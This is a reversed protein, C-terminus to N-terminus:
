PAKAAVVRLLEGRSPHTSALTRLLLARVARGALRRPRLRVRPDDDYGEVLTRLEVVAFGARELAATLSGPAFHCVHAGPDLHAWSGRRLRAGVSEINPVEIVLRGGPRLRARVDRLLGVPDAAHELVHWMCVADFEREPLDATDLYGTRVDVGLRTRAFSASLDSPEVGIADFGDAVARALFFGTGAGVELLRAGRVRARTWRVRREADHRRRRTHDDMRQAAYADDAYIRGADGPLDAAFLLGCSACRRLAVPRFRETSPAPSGCVPCAARAGGPLPDVSGAAPPMLAAGRLLRAGQRALDLYTGRGAHDSPSRLAARALSVAILALAVAARGPPTFYTRAYQAIGYFLRAHGQPSALRRATAGGVHRMVATPVYLTLGHPALRRALDVDEYWFWYREDWGGIREVVSRRVLLCAGAAQDVAVTARDDLPRRVHDATLPNAPWLREVGLLRAVITAPTPFRRPRYPDQTLLDAGVLRGAAAVADPREQLTRLLTEIAGPQVFVDDNLYLVFPASGRAAGMNLAASLGVEYECGIVRVGPHAARVAQATGDGSANDVVTVSTVLECAQVHEICELALERSRWTLFVADIM